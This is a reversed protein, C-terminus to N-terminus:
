LRDSQKGGTKRKKYASLNPLQADYKYFPVIQATWIDVPIILKLKPCRSKGDEKM